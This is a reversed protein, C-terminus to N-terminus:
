DEDYLYCDHQLYCVSSLAIGNPWELSTTRGDDPYNYMDQQENYEKSVSIASAFCVIAIFSLILLVVRANLFRSLTFAKVKTPM